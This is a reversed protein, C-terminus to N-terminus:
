SVMFLELQNFVPESKVPPEFYNMMTEIVQKETRCCLLNEFVSMPIVQHQVRFGKIRFHVLFNERMFLSLGDDGKILVLRCDHQGYLLFWDPLSQRIKEFESENMM